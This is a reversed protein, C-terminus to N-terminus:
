KLTSSTLKTETVVDEVIGLFDLHITNTNEILGVGPAYFSNISTQLSAAPILASTIATSVHIVNTYNTGNVTRSIDKEALTNAITFPIPIPSGPVPINISQTWTAGASVNDKLYLREIAASGIAAPLSDYQYYENGVKGLYQNGGLTTNFVHYTKSAISTDRDTSTIVYDSAVTSGTSMDELHYTWTSGSATNVYSSNGPPNPNPDDKSCSVNFIIAAFALIYFKSIKM